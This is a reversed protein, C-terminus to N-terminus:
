IGISDARSDGNGGCRPVARLLDCEVFDTPLGDHGIRVPTLAIIVAALRRAAAEGDGAHDAVDGIHAVLGHALFETAPQAFFLFESEIEGDIKLDLAIQPIAPALKYGAEM